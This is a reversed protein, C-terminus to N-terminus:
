RKDIANDERYDPRCRFLNFLSSEAGLKVDLLLVDPPTPAAIFAAADALSSGIGVVDIDPERDLLSAVGQGVLPHDDVIALQITM